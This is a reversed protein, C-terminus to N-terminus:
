IMDSVVDPVVVMFGKKRLTLAVQVYYRKDGFLGWGGNLILVIIPTGSATSSADSATDGGALEPADGDINDSQVHGDSAERKSLPPLYVDLRKNGKLSGYPINEKIISERGKSGLVM